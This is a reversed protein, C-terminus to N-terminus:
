VTRQQHQYYYYFRNLQVQFMQQNMLYFMLQDLLLHTM